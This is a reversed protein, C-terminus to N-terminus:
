ARLQRAFRDKEDRQRGAEKADQEPQPSVDRVGCDACRHHDARCQAGCRQRDGNIEGRAHARCSRARLLRNGEGQRFSFGHRVGFAPVPIALLPAPVLPQPGPAFDGAALNDPRGVRGRQQLSDDPWAVPDAQLAVVLLLCVEQGLAKRLGIGSLQVVQMHNLRADDQLGMEVQEAPADGPFEVEGVRPGVAGGNRAREVAALDLQPSNVGVNLQESAVEHVERRVDGHSNSPGGIAVTVEVHTRVDFVGRRDHFRRRELLTDDHCLDVRHQVLQGADIHRAVPDVEHHLRGIREVDLRQEGAVRRLHRLGLNHSPHHRDLADIGRVADLAEVVANAEIGRRDLQQQRGVGFAQPQFALDGSVERQVRMRRQDRRDLASPNLLDM